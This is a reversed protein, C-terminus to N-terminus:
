SKNIKGDTGDSRRCTIDVRTNGMWRDQGGYRYGSRLGSLLCVQGAGAYLCSLGTCNWCGLGSILRRAELEAAHSQVRMPKHMEPCHAPETFCFCIGSSRCVRCHVERYTVLVLTSEEATVAIGTLGPVWSPLAFLRVYKFQQRRLLIGLLNDNAGAGEM